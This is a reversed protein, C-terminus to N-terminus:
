FDVERYGSIGTTMPRDLERLLCIGQTGIAHDLRKCAVPVFCHSNSIHDYKIIKRTSAKEAAKGAHQSSYFVYYPTM